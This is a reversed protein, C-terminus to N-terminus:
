SSARATAAAYTLTRALQAIVYIPEDKLQAATIRIVQYGAAQLALAKRRDNEFAGRHGHFQWSDVELVVKEAEWLFDVEYHGLRVNTRPQSLGAERLLRRLMREAESRTLGPQGEARLLARLRGTGPRSGGAALAKELEGDRILRKARAEAILRELEAPGARRALDIVTRAPSTVLLGHRTRIDRESLRNRHLGIGPKTRRHGRRVTVDITTPAQDILGWLAAASRHSIVSGDGCALLAARERGNPALALHGVAYVGRFLVHLTHSRIWDDITHRAIRAKRLEARTVIGDQRQALQALVRRAV